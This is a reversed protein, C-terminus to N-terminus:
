LDFGWVLLEFVLDPVYKPVVGDLLHLSIFVYVCLEDDKHTCQLGDHASLSTNPCVPTVRCVHQCRWISVVANQCWPENGVFGKMWLMRQFCVRKVLPWSLKAPRDHHSGSFSDPSVSACRNAEVTNLSQMNIRHSATQLRTLITNPPQLHRTAGVTLDKHSDDWPVKFVLSKWWFNQNTQCGRQLFYAPNSQMIQVHSCHLFTFICILIHTHARKMENSQQLFGIYQLIESWCM